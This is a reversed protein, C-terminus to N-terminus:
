VTGDPHITVFTLDGPDIEVVYGSGLKLLGGWSESDMLVIEGNRGQIYIQFPLWIDHRYSPPNMWVPRPKARLFAVTGRTLVDVVVDEAGSAEPFHGALRVNSNLHPTPEVLTALAIRSSSATGNLSSM